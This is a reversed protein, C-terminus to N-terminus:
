GSDKIECSKGARRTLVMPNTRKRVAASFYLSLRACGVANSYFGIRHSQWLGNLGTRLGELNTTHLSSFHRLRGEKFNKRDTDSCKRQSERRFGCECLMAAPSVATTAAAGMAATASTTEVAAAAEAASRV